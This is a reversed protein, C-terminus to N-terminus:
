ERGCWSSFALVIFRRYLLHYNIIQLALRKLYETLIFSFSATLFIHGRTSLREFCISSQKDMGPGGEKEIWFTIILMISGYSWRGTTSFEFVAEKQEGGLIYIQM